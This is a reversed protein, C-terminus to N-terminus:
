AGDHHYVDREAHHQPSMVCYAILELGGLNWVMVRLTIVVMM